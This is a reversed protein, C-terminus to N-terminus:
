RWLRKVTEHITKHLMKVSHSPIRVLRLDYFVSWPSHSLLHHTYLLFCSICTWKGGCHSLRKTFPKTSCRWPTHLSGFSGLIMSFPGYHTAPSMTLTLCFCSICLWKGGCCSLRKTFPKTSCRWPTHLFGFSGLVMSFPGYHTASCITPIPCFVRFVFESVEM